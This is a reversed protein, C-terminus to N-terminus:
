GGVLLGDGVGRRALWEGDGGPLNHQLTRRPVLRGTPGAHVHGRGHHTAFGVSGGDVADADLGRSVDQAGDPCQPGAFLALRISRLGADQGSRRVLQALCDNAVLDVHLTRTRLNSSAALGELRSQEVRNRVVQLGRQRRDPRSGAAHEVLRDGPRGLVPALGKQRDVSLRFSHAAEHAVQEVQAPDFASRELRLELWAVEVVEYGLHGPACPGSGLVHDDIEGVM